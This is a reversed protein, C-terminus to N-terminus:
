FHICVGLLPCFLLYCASQLIIRSLPFLLLLAFCDVQNNIVHVEDCPDFSLSWGCSEVQEYHTSVKESVWNM